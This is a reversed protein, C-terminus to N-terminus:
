ATRAGDVRFVWGQRNRISLLRMSTRASRLRACGTASRSRRSIYRLRPQAMSFRITAASCNPKRGVGTYRGWHGSSSSAAVSVNWGPPRTDGPRDPRVSVVSRARRDAWPRKVSSATVAAAATAGGQIFSRRNTKKM